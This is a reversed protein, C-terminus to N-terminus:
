PTLWGHWRNHQAVVSVLILTEQEDGPAGPVAGSRASWVRHAVALLSDALRGVVEVDALLPEGYADRGVIRGRLLWAFSGSRPAPDNAQAPPRDLGRHSADVM